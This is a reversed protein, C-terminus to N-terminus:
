RGPEDDFVDRMSQDDDDDRAVDLEDERGAGYHDTFAGARRGLRGAKGNEGGEDSELEDDDGVM